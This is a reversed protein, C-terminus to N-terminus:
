IAQVVGLVRGFVHLDATEDRRLTQPAYNPNDSLLM